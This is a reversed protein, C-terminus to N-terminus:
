NFGKISCYIGSAIILLIFVWSIIAMRLRIANCNLPVIRGKASLMGERRLMKEEALCEESAQWAVISKNYFHSFLLTGALGVISIILVLLM